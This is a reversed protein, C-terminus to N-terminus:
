VCTKLYEKLDNKMQERNDQEKTLDESIKLYHNNIDNYVNVHKPKNIHTIYYEYFFHGLVIILISLSFYYILM